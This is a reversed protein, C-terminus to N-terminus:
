ESTIWKKSAAFRILEARSQLELKAMARAKHTEVTKISIDLQSAVEKNTYGRSILRIVEEERDTLYGHHSPPVTAKPMFLGDVLVDVVSSALYKNGSNLTRIAQLLESSASRKLLYGMVGIKLLETLYAQDENATLALLKIKPHSAVLVEAMEIGNMEPMTIDFVLVDPELNRVLEIAEAGTAAEGVVVLDAEADILLKLGQRVIQHDEALLVRIKNM